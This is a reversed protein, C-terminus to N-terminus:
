YIYRNLFGVQTTLHDFEYVRYSQPTGDLGTITVTRVIYDGITEFGSADLISTLVPYAAPYAFYYVQATPSTITNTNQQTQVLKTLAAIQAGTLGPAGVGYYYPYVFTYTQANSIVVPLIGDSVRTTFTSTTSVTTPYVYTELGGGPLPSAQTHILTSDLYFQVSTIPNSRRVTTAALNTSSIVDGFERVGVAPTAVLSVQPGLAPYLLMDWMEQMTRASFTSGTPIGGLSTLTPTTNTYTVSGGGGGSGGGSSNFLNTQNINM